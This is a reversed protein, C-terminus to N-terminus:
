YQLGDLKELKSGQVYRNFKLRREEQCIHDRFTQLSHVEFEPKAAHLKKPEEGMHKGESVLAKLLKQAESGNWQPEGRCNFAPTPHNAKAKM